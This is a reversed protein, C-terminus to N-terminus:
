HEEGNELDFLTQTENKVNKNKRAINWTRCHANRM